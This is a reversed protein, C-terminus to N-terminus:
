MDNEQIGTATIVKQFLSKQSPGYPVTIYSKNLCQNVGSGAIIGMIHDGDEYAQSLKKLFVLGAGEGRCYGDAKADFPKTQGTPSLFNATRLNEWMYPSTNVSVGGALARTCQGSQIAKCAADIAVMSSSCATDYTLSPGTWGFHYSIRGCLFARLEGLAHFASPQHSSINDHYDTTAVGIYCGVDEPSSQNSFYGSSELTHYATQLLIRQQPDMAAAERSSKKFFRHDFADADRIFNGWFPVGDKTRRLGKGVWRSEPLEEAMSTGDHIVQWFEELSDAGAYKCGMGIIAVADAPISSGFNGPVTKKDKFGLEEADATPGEKARTSRKSSGIRTVDLSSQSAISAPVCDSLGFVVITADKKHSIAETAARVVSYWDSVRTLLTAAAIEYLSGESIVRAESNVRISLRLDKADLFKDWATSRCFNIVKSLSNEHASSHFRGDIGLSRVLLGQASLDEVFPLAQSKPVTVSINNHDAIVAIYAQPDRTYAFM